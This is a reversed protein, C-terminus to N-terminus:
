RKRGLLTTLSEGRSVGKFFATVKEGDKNKMLYKELM